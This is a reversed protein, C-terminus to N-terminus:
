RKLPETEQRTQKVGANKIFEEAEVLNSFGKYVPGPFHEVQAKCDEWTFYIGPTKGRAVAYYKKAM